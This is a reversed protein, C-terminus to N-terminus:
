PAGFATADNRGLDIMYRIDKPDFELSKGPLRHQPRLIRVGVRRKGDIRRAEVLRNILMTSRLDHEMMEDSIVDMARVIVDVATPQTTFDVANSPPSTMIVDIDCAGMDIATKLLSANRLGGDMWLQGEIEIPCFMGPFASSALVADVIAPHDQEFNRYEGTNLSVAGVSLRKGSTRIATADMEQRVLEILPTSDYLSPRWFMHLVGFPAWRQRIGRTTVGHWVKLLNAASDRERGRPFMAVNAANLAGVSVGCLIDYHIGLEGILHSIAGVQYAGKSGGGLLALARM